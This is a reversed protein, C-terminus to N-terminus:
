SVAPRIVRYRATSTIKKANAARASVRNRYVGYRYARGARPKGVVLTIQGRVAAGAALRGATWCYTRGKIKAHRPAHLIRSNLPIVDCIRPNIADVTGVNRLVTRIVIHAGPRVRPLRTRRKEVRTTMKLRASQAVAGGALAPNTATDPRPLSGEASTSGTPRAAPTLPTGQASHTFPNTTAGVQRKVLAQRVYFAASIEGVRWKTPSGPDNGPDVFTYTWTGSSNAPFATPMGAPSEDSGDFRSVAAIGIAGTKQDKDGVKLTTPSHNVWGFTASLTGDGNDVLETPALIRLCTAYNPTIDASRKTWKDVPLASGDDRYPSLISFEPNYRSANGNYNTEPVPAVSTWYGSVGPPFTNGAPDSGASWYSNGAIRGAPNKYSFEFAPIWYPWAPIPSRWNPITRIAGSSRNDVEWFTTARNRRPEDTDRVTEFANLCYASPALIRENTDSLVEWTWADTKISGDPGTQRVRLQHRGVTLNRADFEFSCPEYTGGDLSCANTGPWAPQLLEFLVSRRETAGGREVPSGVIINLDRPELAGASPVIVLAALLAVLSFRFGFM